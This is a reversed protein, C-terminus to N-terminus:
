MSALKGLKSYAVGRNNYVEFYDPKLDLAKRYEEIACDFEGIRSFAVGRNSYAEADDPKLEISRSFDEISRKAKGHELSALGRINFAEALKPKLNIARNSDEIARRVDGIQNYAIARNLYVVADDPKLEIAKSYDDIARETEGRENYSAGRNSLAAYLDPKLEIAKSYHSIARGHDRRNSCTLGAFFETYASQHIGQNKIFGHLDNYITETSIGHSKRLFTLIPQKLGKPVSIVDDPEIFGWPPRVFVSKQAIVRNEPNRPYLVQGKIKEVENFIIRGDKNYSGDCAFFLAINYDTTFDILNTKGGFHQLETLIEGDTGHTFQKAKDLIEKQVIEIDFQEAKIKKEFARYLSSSVRPYNEPEGRFFFEASASKEAIEHVLDLVKGPQKDQPNTQNSDSM